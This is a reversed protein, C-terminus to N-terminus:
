VTHNRFDSLGVFFVVAMHLMFTPFDPYMYAMPSNGGHEFADSPYYSRNRVAVRCFILGFRIIEFVQSDSWFDSGHYGVTVCEYREEAV